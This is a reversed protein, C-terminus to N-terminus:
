ILMLIHKKLAKNNSSIFLIIIDNIRLEKKANLTKDSSSKKFVRLSASNPSGIDCFLTPCM